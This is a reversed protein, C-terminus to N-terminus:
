SFKKNTLIRDQLSQLKASKSNIKIILNNIKDDDVQYITSISDLCDNQEESIIARIVLLTIMFSLSLIGFSIAVYPIYKKIKSLIKINSIDILDFYFLLFLFTFLTIVFFIYVLIEYVETLSNNDQIDNNISKILDTTCYVIM